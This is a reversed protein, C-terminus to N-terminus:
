AGGVQGSRTPTDPSPDAFDRHQRQGPRHCPGPTTPDRNGPRAPDVAVAALEETTMERYDGAAASGVDLRQRPVYDGMMELAMRRDQHARPDSNTAARILAEYIEARHKALVSAALKAILTDMAPNKSRWERIARDTALGLVERALEYQTRPRRTDRPQSAWLMYIAQRWPWGEGVLSWYDELWPAAEESSEFIQRAAAARLAADEVVEVEGMGPLPMVGGMPHFEGEGIVFDGTREPLPPAPSTGTSGRGQDTAPDRPPPTRCEDSQMRVEPEGGGEREYGSDVM